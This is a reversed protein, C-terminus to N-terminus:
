PHEGAPVPAPSQGAAQKRIMAKLVIVACTFHALATILWSIPYSIYVSELSGLARFVTAIWAIRLLCVGALSVLTSTTSKGLGRLIGSGVEMEALLFYTTMMYILRLYATHYAMETLEDPGHHVGYLALLPTHLALTLGGFILAVLTTVFYCTGMVRWVRHYKGAGVNQSTFTIAAQYISNTATYVFGELNAAAANGNVVPQFTEGAPVSANNVSLISSQIIMNSLSFLAGQISAPVGILIMDRLAFRDFRLLRLSFRCPGKDLSLRWLLLLASAVNSIATAIAVGEVSLRVVLVFFLNLGVNLLGTLTLIFLPTRTDGKARFISILFNSVAIFPLGFFYIKTYLVALDLLSEQAGMVSLIPRSILLGVGMGLTGLAISIILSTHVARSVNEWSGSGLRRAVVVNAGVALGMFINLVLNIMAGTTGIAGVANAEHSLSVVMMDAANYFTQLLNTLMLPLSFLLVKGLLPGELMNLDRGHGHPHHTHHIRRAEM